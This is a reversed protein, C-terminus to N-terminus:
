NKKPDTAADTKDTQSKGPKFSISLPNFASKSTVPPTAVAPKDTQSKGPKFSISLPNFASKSTVPPTAVAPKDTQSKGPIFSISLPNFASKSTVPPTQAPKDTQSKGPKFPKYDPNFSQSIVTPTAVAPKDTQSKGPIFSISLPNFASKSTVPPTQAPKDTQSKGPKFPKYDPNFSQSIVTPTAVAPKDTQTTTPPTKWINRDLKPPKFGKSKISFQTKIESKSLPNTSVTKTQPLMASQSPQPINPNPNQESTLKYLPVFKSVGSKSLSRSLSSNSRHKDIQSKVNSYNNDEIPMEDIYGNGNEGEMPIEGSYSFINKPGFRDNYDYVMPMVRSNYGDDDDNNNNNDDNNNDDDNNNNDDDDDNNNNDDDNNDNNNNDDDDYEYDDGILRERDDYDDDYENDDYEYDDGIPRERDDYDDNYENDDYEYDDGILREGDNDYRYNMRLRDNDDDDDDGYKYSVPEPPESQSNQKTVIKPPTSTALSSSSTAPIITSSSSSSSSTASQKTIQTTPTQNAQQGQNAQQQQQVQIVPPQAAPLQAAPPQQVQKAQPQPQVQVPQPKSYKSKIIEILKDFTYYDQKSLHMSIFNDLTNFFNTQLSTIKVIQKTKPNNSKYTKLDRYEVLEMKLTKTNTKGLYETTFKYNSDLNNMVKEIDNECMNLITLNSRNKYGLCRNINKQFLTEYIHYLPINGQYIIYNLPLNGIKDKRELLTLVSSNNNSKKFFNIVKVFKKFKNESTDDKGNSLLIYHFINYDNNPNLINVFEQITQIGQNPKFINNKILYDFIEYKFLRVNSKKKINLEYTTKDEM